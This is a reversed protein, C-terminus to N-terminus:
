GEQAFPRGELALVELWGQAQLMAAVEARTRSRVPLRDAMALRLVTRAVTIADGQIARPDVKDLTDAATHLWGRGKHAPDRSAFHASPIGAAMFPYHDSYPRLDMAMRIDEAMDAFLGAFYDKGEPCGQLRCTVVGPRGIVDLNVMFRHRSLEPRHRGVYATSGLCGQEEQAFAVFRVSRRFHIMHPVLARAVELLVAVGCGNDIAADGVDHGDYHAGVVIMEDGAGRLEGVANHSDAAALRHNGGLEVVLPGRRAARAIAHSVEASVAIAPVRCPGGFGAAGAEPLAGPEDRAWIFGVAGLDVARGLKEVRHMAQSTGPPAGASVLVIRGPIREAAAAYDAPAGYGLLVVEGRVTGPPSLALAICPLETEGAQLRAPARQWGPAHFSEVRADHLGLERMYRSLFLGAEREQETGGFRSGFQEVLQCLVEYGQRSPYLDAIVAREVQSLVISDERRGRQWGHCETGAGNM